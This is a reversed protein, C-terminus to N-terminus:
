KVYTSSPLEINPAKVNFTGKEKKYAHGKSDQIGLSGFSGMIGGLHSQCKPMENYGQRQM